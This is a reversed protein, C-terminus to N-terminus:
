RLERGCVCRAARSRPLYRHGPRPAGRPGRKYPISIGGVNATRNGHSPGRSPLM